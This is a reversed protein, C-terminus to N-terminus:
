FIPIFYQQQSTDPPMGKNAKNLTPPEILLKRRNKKRKLSFTFKLCCIYTKEVRAALCLSGYPWLQHRQLYTRTVPMTYKCIETQRELWLLVAEELLPTTRGTDASVQSNNSLGQNITLNSKFETRVDSM